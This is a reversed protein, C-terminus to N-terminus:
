LNSTTLVSFVNHVQGSSEAYQFTRQLGVGIYHFLFLITKQVTCSGYLLPLLLCEYTSTICIITAGLSVIWFGRVPASLYRRSLPRTCLIHEVVCRHAAALEQLSDKDEEYSSQLFKHLKNFWTLCVSHVTEHRCHYRHQCLPDSNLRIPCTFDSEVPAEDDGAVLKLTLELEVCEFVYLSPVVEWGRMWREVAGTEEEEAELVACHYLTGTETAIVLINPVCPLCLVACNDEAAPFMPLPGSPKSLSSSSFSLFIPYCKFDGM